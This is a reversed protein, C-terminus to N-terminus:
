SKPTMMKVVGVEDSPTQTPYEPPTPQGEYGCAVCDLWENDGERCHRVKEEEGCKPCRAGSIFRRVVAM